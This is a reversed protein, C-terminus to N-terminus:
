ALGGRGSVVIFIYKFGTVTIAMELDCVNEWKTQHLRFSTAFQDTAGGKTEVHNKVSMLFLSDLFAVMAM